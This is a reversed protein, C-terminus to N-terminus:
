EEKEKVNIVIQYQLIKWRMMENFCDDCIGKTKGCISYNKKCRTCKMKMNGWYTSISRLEKEEMWLTAKRGKSDILTIVNDEDTDSTKNITVKKIDSVVKFFHKMNRMMNRRLEPNKPSIPVRECWKNLM